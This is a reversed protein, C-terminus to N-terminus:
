YVSEIEDRVGCTEITVIQGDATSWGKREPEGEFVRQPLFPGIIGMMETLSKRAREVRDDSNM